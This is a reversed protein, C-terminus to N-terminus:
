ATKLLQCSKFQKMNFNKVHIFHDNFLINFIGLIHSYFNEKGKLLETLPKVEEEAVWNARNPVMEEENWTESLTQQEEQM